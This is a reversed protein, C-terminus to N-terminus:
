GIFVHAHFFILLHELKVNLAEGVSSFSWVSYRRTKM